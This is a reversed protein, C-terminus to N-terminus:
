IWVSCMFVSHLRFTSSSFTLSATCITVVTRYMYNGSPKLTNLTEAAVCWGYTLLILDHRLVAQLATSKIHRRAAVTSICIGLMVEGSVSRIRLWRFMFRGPKSIM